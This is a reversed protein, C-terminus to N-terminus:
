NKVGINILGKSNLWQITDLIFQDISKYQLGLEREAKSGDYKHGHLMVRLSESCIIPSTRTLSKYIDGFIGLKNILTKPLYMVNKDWETLERLKNILEQSPM